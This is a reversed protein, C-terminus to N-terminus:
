IGPDSGMERLRKVLFDLENQIREAVARLVVERDHLYIKRGVSEASEFRSHSLNAENEIANAVEFGRNIQTPLDSDGKENKRETVMRMNYDM